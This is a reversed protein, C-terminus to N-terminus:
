LGLLLRVEDASRPFMTQSLEINERVANEVLVFDDIFKLAAERTLVNGLRPSSLRQLRSSADMLANPLFEELAASLENLNEM